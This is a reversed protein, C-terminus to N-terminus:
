DKKVQLLGHKKCYKTKVGDGQETIIEKKCYPCKNRRLWLRGRESKSVPLKEKDKERQKELWTQYQLIYKKQEQHKLSKRKQITYRM